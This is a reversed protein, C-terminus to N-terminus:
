IQLAQAVLSDNSVMTTEAPASEDYECGATCMYGLTSQHSTNYM